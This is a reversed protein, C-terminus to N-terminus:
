FIGLWKGGGGGKRITPVAGENPKKGMAQNEALRKQEAVPDVAVGESAPEDTWNLLRQTFQQEEAAFASTEKDVTKRIDPPVMDAGAKALIAVEGRSMGRSRMAELKARGVLASRAQEAATLEQPRNAGPAPPRLNFDPPMVLPGRNLVAFEDPVTKELGLARKTDECGSLLVAGTVALTLPLLKRFAM